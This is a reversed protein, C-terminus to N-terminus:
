EKDAPFWRELVEVLARAQRASSINFKSQERYVGRSKKYRRISAKPAGLEGTDREVEQYLFAVTSWAGKTLVVKDLTKRVLRGDEEYDLTLEDITEAM